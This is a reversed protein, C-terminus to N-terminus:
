KGVRREESRTKTSEGGWVLMQSGTWLATHYYRPEPASNTNLSTWSNASPNYLGGDNLASGNYGGWIIMQSETWVATQIARGSPAGSTPLSTWTNSSVNYSGGTNLYSSGNWGRM